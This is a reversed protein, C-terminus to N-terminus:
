RLTTPMIHIRPVFDLDSDSGDHKKVVASFQKYLKEALEQGEIEILDDNPNLFYGLQDNIKIFATAHTPAWFCYCGVPLTKLQRIMEAPNTQWEKPTASVISERNIDYSFEPQTGIKLDLLKGDKLVVSQLLTSDMGGGNRFQKSLAAMHARPDSFQDKTNLYLYLFWDVIGRCIGRHHGFKIANDKRFTIEKVNQPVRSEPIPPHENVIKGKKNPHNQFSAIKSVKTTALADFGIILQVARHKLGKAMQKSGCGDFGAATIRIFIALIWRFPATAMQCVRWQCDLNNDITWPIGAYPENKRKLVKQISPSTYFFNQLNSYSDFVTANFVRTDGM